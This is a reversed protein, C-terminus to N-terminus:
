SRIFFRALSSSSFYDEPKSQLPARCLAGKKRNELSESILIWTIILNYKDTRFAPIQRSIVNLINFKNVIVCFPFYLLAHM